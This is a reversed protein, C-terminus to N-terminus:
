DRPTGVQTGENGNMKRLATAVVLLELLEEDWMVAFVLIAAPLSLALL